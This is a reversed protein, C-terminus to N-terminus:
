SVFENLAALTSEPSTALAVGLNKLKERVLEPQKSNQNKTILIKDWQTKGIQREEDSIVEEFIKEGPRIGTFVVPVDVDPRLGALRVMERAVDLIKVPKGMDLMFIEGGQGVAGAEMVLLAAEPITMFYRTMEPHTVTLPSRSKIQEKFLPVVSGRSGIVNGFRVSVFKTAGKENLEQTAIEAARKTKGMVSTPRIAKDTSVLVFKPVNTEIAAEAVNLTGFVNTQVAEDPHDEMLPVHKYAAAHFIVDPSIEKTTKFIKKRDAINAIVPQMTEASYARLLEMHLDYLGSENFDLLVLKKPEFAMIQRCLESGISGAAGTILITKNRIFESIKQTEIKAPNRGLLDEIQIERFDTLTVRGTLIEHTDPIIRVHKVGAERAHRVAERIVDAEASTLAIIVHEINHDRVAQPISEIMGVVKIGHIATGIKEERHDVIAVPFPSNGGSKLLDRVLREGETDAGVILARPADFVPRNKVVEYWVRKAIRVGGLFMLNLVFNIFIISRPFGAFLATNERAAFAILAFIINAYAVARLLRTLERLSVFEWAFSYLREGFLFTLNLVAIIAFYALFRGQYEAPLAGDFRFVFALILSLAILILDAAAFGLFRWRGVYRNISDM